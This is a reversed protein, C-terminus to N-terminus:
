NNHTIISNDKIQYFEFKWFYKVENNGESYIVFFCALAEGKAEDFMINCELGNNKFKYYNERGYWNYSEIIKIEGSQALIKSINASINYEYYYLFLSDDLALGIFYNYKDKIDLSYYNVNKGLNIYEYKYLFKGKEDFIYIKENILCILYGDDFKKIKINAMKEITIQEEGSFKMINRVIKTRKEDCIDIGYKHILFFEGNNLQASQLNYIPFSSINLIISLILILMASFNNYNFNYIRDM